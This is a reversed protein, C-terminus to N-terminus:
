GLVGCVKVFDDFDFDSCYEIAKLFSLSTCSAFHNVGKRTRYICSTM